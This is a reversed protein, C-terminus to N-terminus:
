AARAGLGLSAILSNAEALPAPRGLLFGQAEDCGEDRLRQLQADTEVGEATTTIALGGALTVVARVIAECHASGCLEHVFSRDIKLKDFTFARLYSLSSFGTGFDDLAIRIGLARLQHLLRINEDGDALLVAETIELELRDARLGAGALASRVTQVLGRRRFQVPSLNVAVRLHPPWAAAARCARRLVWEGIPVILGTEEALPVFDAPPIVGREPHRWRLLAEFGNLSNDRLNFLPQFDLDLAGDAIAGRLERELTRRATSRANMEPEFFRYTRRGEAKARYLAIDAHGLVTDTLDGDAPALAVGISAGIVVEQGHIDFPTSLTAVIHAALAAAADISTPALQLVAFEDGGLRAVTDRERVCRRMRAAVLRLLEDGAAHGLTDNVPKFQDLDVCFVALPDGDRRMHALAEELRSRFLARNPLGTLVDHHALHAIQAEARVTETVDEHTSVWGGSPLLRHGICITRGDALQARRPGRTESDPSVPDELGGATAGVPGTGILFRYALIDSLASGAEALEPPLRYMDAYRRNCVILRQDRDFMSLGHQMNDLAATLREREAKLAAEVKLRETVDEHTAVWANGPMPRHHIAISRGDKLTVISDTAVVHNHITDRWALYDAFTMDAPCSGVAFRREVIDRLSTGPRIHEPSLGYLEAYRQNCVILNQEGDFFCLAQNINNVAADFLLAQEELREKAAHLQAVTLAIQQKGLSSPNAGGVGPSEAGDRFAPRDNSSQGKDSM